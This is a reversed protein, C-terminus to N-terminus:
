KTITVTFGLNTIYVIAKELTMSDLPLTNIDLDQSSIALLATLSNSYFGYALWRDNWRWESGNWYLCHVALRGSSLCFTSKWAFIYKDKWEETEKPNDKVYQELEEITMMDKMMDNDEFYKLLQTGTISKEGIQNPHLYLTPTKM